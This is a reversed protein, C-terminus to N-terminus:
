AASKAVLGRVTDILGSVSATDFGEPARESANFPIAIDFAEEIAFVAEVLGLSDIGLAALPADRDIDAVEIMAQEAIIGLVKRAIPDPM